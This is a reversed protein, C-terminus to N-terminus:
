VEGPRKTNCAVIKVKDAHVTSTNDLKFNIDKIIFTWVEDCFRYTDLHGKFSMRAKVKEALVDAIAKDFHMLVKMALQPEIRRDTILKDLTDTLAGGLSGRRYLEYYKTDAM